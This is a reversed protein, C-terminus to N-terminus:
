PRRRGIQVTFYTSDNPFMTTSGDAWTVEATLFFSGPTDVDIAQWAYTVKGKNATQDPDPVAAADVKLATGGEPWMRVRVAVAAALSVAGAADQLTLALAPSRNGQTLYVDAM